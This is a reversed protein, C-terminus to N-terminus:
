STPKFLRCYTPGAKASIIAFTLPSHGGGRNLAGLSNSLLSPELIRRWRLRSAFLSPSRAFTNLPLKVMVMGSLCSDSISNITSRGISIGLSIRETSPLEGAEPRVEVETEELAEAEPCAEGETVVLAQEEPPLDEAELCVEVESVVLMEEEMEVSALSPTHPGEAEALLFM